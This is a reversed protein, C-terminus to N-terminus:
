CGYMCSSNDNACLETQVVHRQHSDLKFVKNCNTHVCVVSWDVMTCSIQIKQTGIMQALVILQTNDHNSPTHLVTAAIAARTHTHTHTHTYMHTHTLTHIHTHTHTHVYTPVTHTHTHTHTCTRLYQTHIHVYQHTHHTHLANM